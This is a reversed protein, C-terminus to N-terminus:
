KRGGFHGVHKTKRGFTRGEGGIPTSASASSPATSFTTRGHLFAHFFAFNVKKARTRTTHAPHLCRLQSQLFTAKCQSTTLLHIQKGSGATAFLCVFLCVFTRSSVNFLKIIRVIKRREIFQVAKVSRRMSDNFCTLQEPIFSWVFQCSNAVFGM